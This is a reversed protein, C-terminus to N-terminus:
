LLYEDYFLAAAAILAALLFHSLRARPAFARCALAMLLSSVSIALAVWEILGLLTEHWPTSPPGGFSALVAGHIIYAAAVVSLWLPGISTRGETSGKERRRSSVFCAVTWAIAGALFFWVPPPARVALNRITQRPLCTALDWLIAAGDEGVTLLTKGDKLYSLGIVDGEHGTLAIPGSLPWLKWIEVGSNRGVALRNGDPSFALSRPRLVPIDHVTEGTRPDLLRVASGDCVALRTGGQILALELSAEPDGSSVYRAQPFGAGPRSARPLARTTFGSAEPRYHSGTVRGMEDLAVARIGSDAKQFQAQPPAKRDWLYLIGSSTGACVSKGDPAVGVATIRDGVTASDLVAGTATDLVQLEGNRMGAVIQSGDPFFAASVRGSPLRFSPSDQAIGMVWNGDPAFMIVARGDAAVSCGSPTGPTHLFWHVSHTYAALMAFLVALLLVEGLTFPVSGSPKKSAGSVRPVGLGGANAVTSVASGPRLIWRLWVDLRLNANM